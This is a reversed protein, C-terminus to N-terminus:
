ELFRFTSLMQNFAKELEKFKETDKMGFVGLYYLNEKHNIKVRIYKVVCDIKVGHYFTKEKELECREAEYGSLFIKECKAESGLGYDKNIVLQVCEDTGAVSYGFLYM